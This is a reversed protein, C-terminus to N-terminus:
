GAIERPAFHGFALLRPSSVVWGSREILRSVLEVAM